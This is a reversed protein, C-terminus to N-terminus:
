KSYGFSKFVPFDTEPDNPFLANSGRINNLCIIQENDNIRAMESIYILDFAMFSLCNSGYEISTFGESLKRYPSIYIPGDEINIVTEEGNYRLSLENGTRKM